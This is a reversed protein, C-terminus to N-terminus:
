RFAARVDNRFRICVGDIGSLCLGVGMYRDCIRHGRPHNRDSWMRPRASGRPLPRYPWRTNPCPFDVVDGRVRARRLDVSRNRANSAETVSPIPWVRPIAYWLRRIRDACDGVFFRTRNREAYRSKTPNEENLQTDRNRSSGQDAVDGVHGAGPPDPLSDGIASFEM